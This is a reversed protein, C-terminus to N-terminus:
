LMTSSPAAFLKPEDRKVPFLAIFRFKETRIM